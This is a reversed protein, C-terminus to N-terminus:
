QQKQKKSSRSSQISFWKQYNYLYFTFISFYSEDNKELMEELLKNVCAIKNAIMEFNIGDCQAYKNKLYKIDKKCTFMDLWEGFTMNFVFIVTNYDKVKEKHNIIREIFEKNYDPLIGKYKPTIDMSFLDKLQMNLYKIDNKKNLNKIFKYNLKYLRNRDEDKKNLINNLFELLYAFLRAKIKRIINDGSMKTHEEYFKNNTKRERGRKIKNKQKSEDEMAIFEEMQRYRKRKCLKDEASEINYNYTFKQYIDKFKKENEAFIKQIQEFSFCNNLLKNKYIAKNKPSPSNIKREYHFETQNTILSTKKINSDFSHNFYIEDKGRQSDEEESLSIIENKFFPGNFLYNIAYDYTELDYNFIQEYM